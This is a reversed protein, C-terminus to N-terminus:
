RYDVCRYGNPSIRGAQMLTDADHREKILFNVHEGLDKGTHRRVSDQPAMVNGCYFRGQPMLNNKPTKNTDKNCVPLCTTGAPVYGSGDYSWSKGIRDNRCEYTLDRDSNLDYVKGAYTSYKPDIILAPHACKFGCYVRIMGFKRKLKLNLREIAEEDESQLIEEEMRLERDQKVRHWRARNTAEDKRCLFKTAPVTMHEGDDYTLGEMKIYVYRKPTMTCQKLPRLICATKSGWYATVGKCARGRVNFDQKIEALDNYDPFMVDEDNFMYSCKCNGLKACSNKHFQQYGPTGLHNNWYSKQAIDGSSERMEIFGNTGRELGINFNDYASTMAGFHFVPISEHIRKNKGGKPTQNTIALQFSNTETECNIGSSGDNMGVWTIILGNTPKFQRSQYKSMSGVERKFYVSGFANADNSNVRIWAQQCGGKRAECWLRVKGTNYITLRNFANKVGPFLKPMHGKLLKITHQEKTGDNTFPLLEHKSISHGNWAKVNDWLTSAATTDLNSPCMGLVATLGSLIGVALRVM